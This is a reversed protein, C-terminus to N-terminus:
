GCRGDWVGRRGGVGGGAGEGGSEREERGGLIGFAPGGGHSFCGGGVIFLNASAVRRAGLEGIVAAGIGAVDCVVRRSRRRQRTVHAPVVGGLRALCVLAM